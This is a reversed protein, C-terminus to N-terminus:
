PFLSIRVKEVAKDQHRLKEKTVMIGNSHTCGQCSPGLANGIDPITCTGMCGAEGASITVLAEWRRDQGGFHLRSLLDGPTFLRAQGTHEKVPTPPWHDEHLQLM